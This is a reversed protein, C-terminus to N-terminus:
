CTRSTGTQANTVIQVSPDDAVLAFYSYLPASTKGVPTRIYALTAEHDEKLAAEIEPVSQVTAVTVNTKKGDVEKEARAGWIPRAESTASSLLGEM